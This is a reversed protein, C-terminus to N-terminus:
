HMYIRIKSKTAILIENQYCKCIHKAMWMVELWGHVVAKKLHEKKVDSLQVENRPNRTRKKYSYEWFITNNKMTEYHCLMWRNQRGLNIM